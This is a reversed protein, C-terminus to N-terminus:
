WAVLADVRATGFAYWSARPDLEEAVRRVEEVADLARQHDNTFPGLLLAYREGDRVTVYYNGPAADAKQTSAPAEHRYTALAKM